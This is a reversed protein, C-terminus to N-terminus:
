YQCVALIDSEYAWIRRDTDDEPYMWEERDAPQLLGDWRPPDFRPYINEVVAVMPFGHKLYRVLSGERYSIDTGPIVRPDKDTAKVKDSM